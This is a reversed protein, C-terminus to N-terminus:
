EHDTLIGVISPFLKALKHSPGYHNRGNKFPEVMRDLKAAGIWPYLQTLSILNSLGPSVFGRNNATFGRTGPNSSLWRNQVCIQKLRKGIKRWYNSVSWFPGLVIKATQIEQAGRQWPAYHSRFWPCWTSHHHPWHAAGEESAGAWNEQGRSPPSSASM